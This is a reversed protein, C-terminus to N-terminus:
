LGKNELNGNYKKPPNKNQQRNNAFSKIGHQLSGHQRQIPTSISKM